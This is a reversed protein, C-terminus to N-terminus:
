LSYKPKWMRPMENEDEGKMFYLLVPVLRQESLENIRDHLKESSLFIEMMYNIDMQIESNEFLDRIPKKLDIRRRGDNYFVRGTTQIISDASSITNVPINM